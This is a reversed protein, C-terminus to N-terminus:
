PIHLKKLCTQSTSNENTIAVSMYLSHSKPKWVGGYKLHDKISSARDGTKKNSKHTQIIFNEYTTKTNIPRHSM